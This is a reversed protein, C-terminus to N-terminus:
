RKGVDGRKYLVFHESGPAAVENGPWTDKVTSWTAPDKFYSFNNQHGFNSLVFDSCNELQIVYPPWGEAAGLIGGFGFVQFNRSNRFRILPRTGTEKNGIEFTEGKVGYISVNAVGIFESMVDGRAHEPNFMYIALPQTTGRILQVRYDAGAGGAGGGVLNFWRGGGNGEILVHAYNASGSAPWRHFSVNRVASRRGARWHLAYAGPILARLQLFGLTSSAEADDVTEVLPKPSKADSFAPADAIPTIETFVSGVGFLVSSSRLRLTRSIKYRGKPLFVAANNDIARQIADTDDSKGDGKASYPERRANVVGPADWAPFVALDHKSQLDNPPPNTASAIRAYSASTQKKGDIWNPYPGAPAGAYEEVLNWGKAPAKREAGGSLAVVAGTGKVYTRNLYVPRDSRIAAGGATIEIASDIVSLGGNYPQGTGQCVIGAGRISAGVVTLPGRGAYQIAAASQDQLTAHTLLPSPQSGSFQRYAGIGVAYVGFQGGRVTLRTTSGGSGQLGRMGAFAGAADITVDEVVAGQAGQLDIGIAGANGRIDLDLSMAAQNFSVNPALPYPSSWNRAWILLLPKPSSPEGFGAAAPKLRIVVRGGKRSGQLVCPFDNARLREESRVGAAPKPDVANQVCQLTDSVLYTGAPLWTVLRADRADKMAQQLARTDDTKGDGKANYPAKTVDLIGYGALAKDAYRDLVRAAASAAEAQTRFPKDQPSDTLPPFQYSEQAAAPLLAATYLLMIGTITRMGKLTCLFVVESTFHWFRKDRAARGGSRVVWM